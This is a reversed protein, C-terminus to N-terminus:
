LLNLLHVSSWPLDFDVVTHFAALFVPKERYGVCGKSLLCVGETREAVNMGEWCGTGSSLWLSQSVWCPIGLGKSLTPSVLTLRMVSGQSPSLKGCGKKGYHHLPSHKHTWCYDCSLTGAVRLIKYAGFGSVWVCELHYGAEGCAWQAWWHHLRKQASACCGMVDFLLIKEYNLRPFLLYSGVGPFAPCFNCHHTGVAWLVTRGTAQFTSPCHLLM